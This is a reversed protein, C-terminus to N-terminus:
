RVYRGSEFCSKEYRSIFQSKDYRTGHIMYPRDNIARRRKDEFAIDMTTSARCRGLAEGQPSATLFRQNKVSSTHPLVKRVQGVGRRIRVVKRPYRLPPTEGGPVCTDRIGMAKRRFRVMKGRPVPFGDRFGVSWGAGWVKRRVGPTYTPAIMSRGDGRTKLRLMRNDCQRPLAGLSGQTFPAPLVPEESGTKVSPNHPPYQTKVLFWHSNTAAQRM